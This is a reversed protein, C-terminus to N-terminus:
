VPVPRVADDTSVGSFATRTGAYESRTYGSRGSEAYSSGVRKALGVRVKEESNRCSRMAMRLAVAVM